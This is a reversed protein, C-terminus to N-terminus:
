EGAGLAVRIIGLLDDKSTKGEPVDLEYKECFAALFKQDKQKLSNYDVLQPKAAVAARQDEHVREFKKPMKEWNFKAELDVESEVIVEPDPNGDKDGYPRPAQFHETVPKQVGNEEYFKTPSNQIHSGSLLKFRMLQKKENQMKTSM